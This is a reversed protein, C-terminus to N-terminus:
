LLRTDVFGRATNVKLMVLEVIRDKSVSPGTAEIDFIILPKVLKLEM